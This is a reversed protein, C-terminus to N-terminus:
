ETLNSLDKLVQGVFLGFLRSMEKNSDRYRGITKERQDRVTSSLVTVGNSKVFGKTGTGCVAIITPNPGAPIAIDGLPRKANTAFEYSPM